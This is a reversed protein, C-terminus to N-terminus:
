LDQLHDFEMSEILEQNLGMESLLTKARDFQESSPAKDIDIAYAEIMKVTPRKLSFEEGYIRIKLNESRKIEFVDAM